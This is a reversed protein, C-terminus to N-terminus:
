LVSFFCHSSAPPDCLLLNPLEVYFCVFWCLSSVAKIWLCRVDTLSLSAQDEFTLELGNPAVYWGM